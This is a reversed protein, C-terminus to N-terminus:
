YKKQTDKVVETIRNKQTYNEKVKQKLTVTQATRSSFITDTVVKHARVRLRQIEQARDGADPLFLLCSSSLRVSKIRACIAKTMEKRTAKGLINSQQRNQMQKSNHEKQVTAM